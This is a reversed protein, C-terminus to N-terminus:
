LAKQGLTGVGSLIRKNSTFKSLSVMPNCKRKIDEMNAFNESSWLDIFIYDIFYYIVDSQWPIQCTNLIYLVHLGIILNKFYITM